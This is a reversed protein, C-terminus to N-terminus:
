KIKKAKKYNTITRPNINLEKAADKIVGKNRALAEKIAKCKLEKLTM